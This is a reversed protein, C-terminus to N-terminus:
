KSFDTADSAQGMKLEGAEAFCCRPKASAQCPARALEVFEQLDVTDLLDANDWSLKM